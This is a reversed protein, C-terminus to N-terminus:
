DTKKSIKAKPLFHYLEEYSEIEAESQPLAPILGTCDTASCSDIYSDDLDLSSMHIRNESQKELEKKENKM